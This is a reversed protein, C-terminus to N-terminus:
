KMKEGAKESGSAIKEDVGEALLIIGQLDGAQSQRGQRASSKREKSQGEVAKIEGIDRRGKDYIERKTQGDPVNIVM